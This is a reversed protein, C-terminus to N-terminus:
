DSRRTKTSEQFRRAVIKEAITQFARQVNDGTKSSTSFWTGSYAEAAANLHEATILTRGGLGQDNALFVVPIKGTVGYANEIWQDLNQLTETRTVDCVALIGHAGYFYAEKLLELFGKQGLIDWITMEIELDGTAVPHAVSLHTKSVKSGVTQIYKDDFADVVFRRILSSKGVDRDGVIVVKVKMRKVEGPPPGVSLAPPTTTPPGVRDANLYGQGLLMRLRPALSRELAESGDWDEIVPAFEREIGRICDVLCRSLKGNGKGRVRAALILFKGRRLIIKMGGVAFEVLEDRDGFANGVFTLNIFLQGALVDLDIRSPTNGEHAVLLGGNTMLFLEEIISDERQEKRSHQSDPSSKLPRPEDKAAKVPRNRADRETDGHGAAFTKRPLDHATSALREVQQRLRRVENRLQLLETDEVSPRTDTGKMWNKVEELFADAAMSEQRGTWLVVDFILTRVEGGSVFILFPVGARQAKRVKAELPVSSIDVDTPVSGLFRVIWSCDALLHADRPIIRVVPPKGHLEQGLAMGPAGHDLTLLNRELLTLEKGDLTEPSVPVLVIARRQMVFENVHKVFMLTAPFDNNIILYELGDLLVVGLGNNDEIFKQIVRALSGIATPPHFDLGPTNSLWIIRVNTVNREQKVRDPYQRTVVLGPEGDRLLDEFTAYAFDPTKEKFLYCAGREVRSGSGGTTGATCRLIRAM